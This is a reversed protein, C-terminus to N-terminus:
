AFYRGFCSSRFALSLSVSQQAREDLHRHIYKRNNNYTERRKVMTVTIHVNQRNASSQQRNASFEIAHAQKM